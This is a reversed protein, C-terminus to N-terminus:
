SPIWPVGDTCKGHTALSSSVLKGGRDIRKLRAVHGVPKCTDGLGNLKGCGINSQAHFRFSERGAVFWSGAVVFSRGVGVELGPFM